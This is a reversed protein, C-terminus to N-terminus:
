RAAAMLARQAQAEQGMELLLFAAKELGPASLELGEDRDRRAPVNKVVWGDERYTHVDSHTTGDAVLGCAAALILIGACSM